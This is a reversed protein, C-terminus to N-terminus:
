WVWVVPRVVIKVNGGSQQESEEIAIAAGDEFEVVTKSKEEQTTHTYRRFIAGTYPDVVPEYHKVEEYIAFEMSGGIGDKTRRLTQKTPKGFVRCVEDRTMGLAVEGAEILQRVEMERDYVTKLLEQINGQKAKLASPKVWGIQGQGQVKWARRDFGILTVKGERLAGLKRGGTKSSYVGTPEVVVLEVNEDSPLLEAVYVVEPDSDILSRRAKGAGREGEAWAILSFGLLLPLVFSGIKM